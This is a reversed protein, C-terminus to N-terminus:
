CTCLKRYDDRSFYILVEVFNQLLCVDDNGHLSVKDHSLDAVLKSGLLIIEKYTDPHQLVHIVLKLFAAQTEPANSAEQLFVSARTTIDKDNLVTQVVATALEHTETKLSENGLTEKAFDATKESMMKYLRDGFLSVIWFVFLLTGVFYARFRTKSSEHIRHMLKQEIEEYTHNVSRFAEQYRSRPIEDHTKADSTGHSVNTGDTSSPQLKPLENDTKHNINRKDITCFTRFSELVSIRSTKARGFCANIHTVSGLSFKRLIM